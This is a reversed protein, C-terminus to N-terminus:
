FEPGITRETREYIQFWDVGYTPVVMLKEPLGNQDKEGMEGCIFYVGPFKDPSLKQLVEAQRNCKERLRVVEKNSEHWQTVLHALRYGGTGEKSELLAPMTHLLLERKAADSIPEWLSRLKNNEARLSEIELVMAKELETIM